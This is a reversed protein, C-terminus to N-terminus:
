RELPQEQIQLSADLASTQEEAHMAYQSASVAAVAGAGMRGAAPGPKVDAAGACECMSYTDCEVRLKVGRFLIRCAEIPRALASAHCCQHM